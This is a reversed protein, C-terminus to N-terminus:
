RSGPRRRDPVFAGARLDFPSPVAAGAAPPTPGNKWWSGPGDSLAAAIAAATARARRLRAQQAHQQDVAVGARRTFPGPRLFAALSEGHELAADTSAAATAPLGISKQPRLVDRVLPLAPRASSGSLRVLPRGDRAGNPDFAVGRDLRVPVAVVEPGRRQTRRGSCCALPLLAPTLERQQATAATWRGSELASREAPPRLWRQQRKMLGTAPVVWGCRRTELCQGSQVWQLV